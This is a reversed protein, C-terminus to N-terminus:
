TSSAPPKLKERAHGILFNCAEPCLLPIEGPQIRPPQGAPPWLRQKLCGPRCHAAVLENIGPDDIERVLRFRGTQREATERWPTAPLRQHQWLTWNALAAPYLYDLALQLAPLDNARHLWGRPLGPAARLPRFHGERDRSILERLQGPSDVPDLDTVPTALDSHHLLELSANPGSRIVIEGIKWPPPTEELFHAFDDGIAPPLPTPSTPQIAEPHKAQFEAVQSLITDALFAESGIATAYWLRRGNEHHPNAFDKERINHTLGLLVPIDEYSHLGDSIFFPVVIVDPCATLARWDKVFPSQEMLVAQCDAYLGLSRIIGAQEHIIKTSNDNLSTGHGCIFLCTTKSPDPITETSSAVVTQARRLLAENMVPHLGVPLCYFIDQGDIRTVPGNLGLERPIIQETFYGSSIFNPVVYVHRRRTQRLAQRFNPEEKWFAVHVEAFLGRRRLEEAHQWTPASSDANLTSGHGLLLLAAERTPAPVVM